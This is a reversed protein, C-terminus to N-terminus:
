FHVSFKKLVSNDTISVTTDNHFYKWEKQIFTHYRDPVDNKNKIIINSFSDVNSNSPIDQTIVANAAIRVNDGITIKGIIKVGPYIYCNDGISPSGFLKANPLTDSQISVQQFIVCNKGITVNSSVIIQKIGYPLIPTNSFIAKHSIASGHEFQYANYLFLYIKKLFTNHTTNCLSKLHWINGFPKILLRFIM